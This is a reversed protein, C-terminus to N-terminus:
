DSGRHGAPQVLSWQGPELTVTVEVTLGPVLAAIDEGEPGLGDLALRKAVMELDPAVRLVTDDPYREVFARLTEETLDPTIGFEAMGEGGSEVALAPEPAYLLRGFVDSERLLVLDVLDVQIEHGGYRSFLVEDGEVLPLEGGQLHQGCLPGVHKVIGRHPKEQAQDPLIVGGASVKEEPLREVTLRDGLPELTAQQM